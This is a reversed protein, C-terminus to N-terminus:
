FLFVAGATLFSRFFTTQDFDDSGLKEGGASLPFKSTADPGQYMTLQMDFRLAFSPTFYFKQGFGVNFAVNTSDEFQVLGAGLIGYVAVNMVNQKSLSIKGYYANHQYNALLISSVAPARSADFTQGADLGKGAQLDTGMNSLDTQLIHAFVNLAHIESFHFTANVNIEMKNYLAEILNLGAGAGVEFRGATKIKRNKVAITKDFVPLVSESALEEDDFEITEAFSIGCSLFIYLCLLWKM